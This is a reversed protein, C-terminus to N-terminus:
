IQPDLHAPCPLLALTGLVDRGLERGGKPGRLCGLCPPLSLGQHRVPLGRGARSM